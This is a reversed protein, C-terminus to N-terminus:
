DNDTWAQFSRELVSGTTTQAAALFPVNQKQKKRKKTGGNFCCCLLQPKPHFCFLIFLSRPVILIHTNIHILSRLYIQIYM